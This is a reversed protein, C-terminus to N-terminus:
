DSEYALLCIKECEDGEFVVWLLKQNIKVMYSTLDKGYYGIVMDYLENKTVDLIYDVYGENIFVAQFRYENIMNYPFLIGQIEVEHKPEEDEKNEYFLAKLGYSM